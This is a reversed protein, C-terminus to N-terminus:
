FLFVMTHPIQKVQLGGPDLFFYSVPQYAVQLKFLNSKALVVIVPSQWPRHDADHAAPVLQAYALWTQGPRLWSAPFLREVLWNVYWMVHRVFCAHKAQLWACADWCKHVINTNLMCRMMCTHIITWTPRCKSRRCGCIHSKFAYHLKFSILM